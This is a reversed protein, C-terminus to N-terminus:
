LSQRLDRGALSEYRFTEAYAVGPCRQCHPRLDCTHCRAVDEALAHYRAQRLSYPPFGPQVGFALHKSTTM